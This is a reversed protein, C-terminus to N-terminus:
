TTAASPRPSQRPLSRGSRRGRRRGEEGPAEARAAAGAEDGPRGPPEGPLDRAQERLRPRPLGPQLRHLHQDRRCPRRCGQERLRPGGAPPAGDVGPRCRRRGPHGRRGRPHQDPQIRLCPHRGGAQAPVDDLDLGRPAGAHPDDPRPGRALRHGHQAGLCRGGRPGEGPRRGRGLDAGGAGPGAALDPVDGPLRRRADRPDPARGGRPLADAEGAYRGLRRQAPQHARLPVPQHPLGGLGDGRRRRLRGPPGARRRPRLPRHHARRGPQEARAAQLPHDPVQPQLRLRQDPHVRLARRAPDADRDSRGRRPGRRHGPPAPGGAPRPEDALRLAAAM